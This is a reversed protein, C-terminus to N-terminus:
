AVSGAVPLRARVAYGGDAEPGADLGGGLALARERMGSIGHGTTAVPAGGAGTGDDVVDVAVEDPDYCLRLTVHRADAHRLVNTIAERVIHYAALAVAPPVSSPDGTEDRTISLGGRRADALVADLEALGPSPLRPAAEDPDARLVRILSRLEGMADGRVRQAEAIAKRARTPSRDLAEDAVHLSVGVVTLTHAVLDHLERAVGLREEVGRRRLAEAQEQAVARVQERTATEWGRRNHVAVGLAVVLGLWAADRIVEDALRLGSEADILLRWAAGQAILVSGVGVSLAARGAAGATYLPVTLPWLYGIAPWGAAHYALVAAASAVLVGVPYRRRVLLLGGLTVSVLYGGVASPRSAPEEALAVALALAAAVLLALLADVPRDPWRVFRM